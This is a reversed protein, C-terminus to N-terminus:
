ASSGGTNRESRGEHGWRGGDITFKLETASKM